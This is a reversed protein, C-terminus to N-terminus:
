HQFTAMWNIAEQDAHISNAFLWSTSDIYLHSIKTSRSLVVYAWGKSSRHIPARGEAMWMHVVMPSDITLGQVKHGTLAFAPVVPIQIFYGQPQHDPGAPGAMEQRTLYINRGDDLNIFIGMEPSIGNVTGMSGNVVRLSKINQRIMVRMGVLIELEEPIPEFAHLVADAEDKSNALVQGRFICSDAGAERLKSIALENHAQVAKNSSFIHLAQSLQSAKEKYAKIRNLFIPSSPVRGVRIENLADAYAKDDKQRVVESLLVKTFSLRQLMGKVERKAERYNPVRFFMDGEVPPLQLPDGVLVWQVGIKSEHILRDAVDLHIADIMSIEDIIIVLSNQGRCWENLKMRFYSYDASLRHVARESDMYTPIEKVFKGEVRRYTNIGHGLGFFSHFTANGHVNNVSVGTSGLVVLAKGMSELAERIREMLYSKGSGANGTILTNEGRLIADFAIGQNKTLTGKLFALDNNVAQTEQDVEPLQPPSSLPHLKEYAAMAQLNGMGSEEVEHTTASTPEVRGKEKFDVMPSAMEAEFWHVEYGDVQAVHFCQGLGEVMWGEELAERLAANAPTEGQEVKGGPLGIKDSGPRTVVAWSDVCGRAIPALVFAAQKLCPSSSAVPVEEEQKPSEPVPEEDVVASTDDLWDCDAESVAECTEVFEEECWDTPPPTPTPSDPTNGGIGFKELMFAVRPGMEEEWLLRDNLIHNQALVKAAQLEIQSLGIAQALKNMANALPEKMGSIDKGRYKMLLASGPMKPERIRSAWTTDALACGAYLYLIAAALIIQDGTPKRDEPVQVDPLVVDHAMERVMATLKAKKVAVIGSAGLFRAMHKARMEPNMAGFFAHMAKGWVLDWKYQATPTVRYNKRVVKYLAVAMQNLVGKEKWEALMPKWVNKFFSAVAKTERNTSTEEDWLKYAVSKGRHKGNAVPPLLAEVPDKTGGVRKFGASHVNKSVMEGTNPDKVDRFVCTTVGNVYSTIGRIEYKGSANPSSKVFTFYGQVLESLGFPVKKDGNGAFAYVEGLGISDLKACIADFLAVIDHIGSPKGNGADILEEGFWPQLLINYTPRLIWLQYLKYSLSVEVEKRSRFDYEVFYVEGVKLRRYRALYKFSAPPNILPVLAGRIELSSVVKDFEEFTKPAFGEPTSQDMWDYVPKYKCVTSAWAGIIALWGNKIQLLLHRIIDRWSFEGTAAPQRMFRNVLEEDYPLEPRVLNEKTAEIVRPDQNIGAQDDLDGGGLTKLLKAIVQWSVQVTGIAVKFTRKLTLLVIEWPNSHPSRTAVAEGERNGCVAENDKLVTRSLRYYGDECFGSLDPLIYARTGFEDPVQVGGLAVKQSMKTGGTISNLVQSALQPFQGLNFRTLIRAAIQANGHEGAEFFEEESVEITEGAFAKFAVNGLHCAEEAKKFFNVVYDIFVAIGAKSFMTLWQRDTRLKTEHDVISQFLFMDVPPLWDRKINEEHIYIDVDDPMTWSIIANGKVIYQGKVAWRLTKLVMGEPLRKIGRKIWDVGYLLRMIFNGNVRVAGDHIPKLDLGLGYKSLDIAKGKIDEATIAEQQAKTLVVARIARADDGKIWTLCAGFFGSMRAFATGSIVELTKGSNPKGLLKQGPTKDSEEFTLGDRWGEVRIIKWTDQRFIYGFTEPNTLAKAILGVVEAKAKQGKEGYARLLSADLQITQVLVKEPDVPKGLVETLLDLFAWRGHLKGDQKEIVLNGREASYCIIEAKLSHRQPLIMLSRDLRKM